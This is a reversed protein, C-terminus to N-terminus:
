GMRSIWWGLLLGPLVMLITLNLTTILRDAYEEM